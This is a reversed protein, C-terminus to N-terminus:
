PLVAIGEILFFFTGAAFLIPASKNSIASGSIPSTTPPRLFSLVNAFFNPVFVTQFFIPPPFIFDLSLVPLVMERFLLDFFLRDRLSMKSLLFLTYALNM